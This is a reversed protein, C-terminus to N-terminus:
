SRDGPAVEALRQAEVDSSACCVFVAQIEDIPKPPIPTPTATWLELWRLPRGDVSLTTTPAIRRVM